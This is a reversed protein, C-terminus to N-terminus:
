EEWTDGYKNTKAVGKNDPLRQPTPKHLSDAKQAVTVEYLERNKNRLEDYTMSKRQPKSEEIEPSTAGTTDVIGTPASESLTSSFPVSEHKLDSISHNYDDSYTIPSNVEPQLHEVTSDSFESKQYSHPHPFRRRGQRLADGLPSNELRMFKEQCTKMYSIKGILYGCIGAFAVKPISGFRTSTSLVGRSILLQTGLMSMGSFPLSRYYFSEQNCERFVRREEETPIYSTDLQGEMEM